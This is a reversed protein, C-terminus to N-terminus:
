LTFEMGDYAVEWGAQRVIAAQESDECLIPNTNNIHIFIKKGITAPALAALTGDNGSVSMHGMRKGTKIGTGSEIMENDDWLTGDFFLVDSGNIRNLLDGTMSACGPIYFLKKGRSDTVRLGIVADDSTLKAIDNTTEQYLPIKGSVPFAEVTLGVPSGAANTIESNTGVTLNKFAVIRRNLARFVSNENIIKQVFFDAYVTLPQNERLSLLGAICDVDGSSIIVAAIPSHRGQKTGRPQLCSTNSIQFTLDPSANLLVWSEGNDSVAISAQTRPKVYPDNERARRCGACNCNWQPFGGGAAAGLVRVLM